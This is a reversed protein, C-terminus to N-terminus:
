ENIRQKYLQEILVSLQNAAKEIAQEAAPGFFNRPTIAGRGGVQGSKYTHWPVKQTRMITHGNMHTTVRSNTGSDLFRLIFQRDKGQYSMIQETRQTRGRRSGGVSGGGSARKKNIINVNGGLVQKYIMKRVARATGKPDSQIASSAASSVERVATQLVKAVLKRMEQEMTRDTSLLKELHVNNEIHLPEAM